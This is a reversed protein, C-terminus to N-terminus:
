RSRNPIIQDNEDLFTNSLGLDRFTRKMHNEFSEGSAAEIVAAVLTYGHTTYNFEKGTFFRM